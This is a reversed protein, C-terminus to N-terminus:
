RKEIVDMWGDIHLNPNENDSDDQKTLFIAKEMVSKQHRRAAELPPRHASALPVKPTVTGLYKLYM